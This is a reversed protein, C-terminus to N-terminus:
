YTNLPIPFCELCFLAQASACLYSFEHNPFALFNWITLVYPECFPLLVLSHQSINVTTYSDSYFDIDDM